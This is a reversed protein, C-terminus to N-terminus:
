RQPLAAHMRAIDGMYYPSSHKEAAILMHHRSAKRNGLSEYYLGLYLHCYFMASEAQQGSTAEADRQVQDPTARGGFLDYVRMMPVRDDPGVPLLAKRAAAVGALKAKCLFHWVANEVDNPNVGKHIEFQRVGDLFRGAYYYAIGRQWHHPEARPEAAIYADFDAIAEEFRGAKLLVDGRVNRERPSLPPEQVPGTCTALLVAAALTRKMDAVICEGVPACLM